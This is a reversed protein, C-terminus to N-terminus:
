PTVTATPPTSTSGTSSTTQTQAGAPAESTAGAFLGQSAPVLYATTSITVKSGNEDFAISDVTLLRGFIQLDGGSTWSLRKINRVLDELRLFSGKFVLDYHMVRLGAAGTTAGSPAAATLTADAPVSGLTDDPSASTFQGSSGAAPSPAPTGATGTDSGSSTTLNLSMFEVGARSAAQSLQLVLAPQDTNAPVAKGLRALSAYVHPFELRARAFQQAQQRSAEYDSKASAVDKKASDLSQLKPHLALLWFAAVVGILGVVSLLYRDRQNV